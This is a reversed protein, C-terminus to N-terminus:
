IEEQDEEEREEDLTDENLPQQYLLEEVDETLFSGDRRKFAKIRKGAIPTRLLTGDLERLSYTGNKHVNTVVYPGFWRRSFKKKASHQHELSSDFVLVWDGEQIPHIRLRHTKDFREKNSLRAAKLREQAIEQNGPLQELQQIRLELLQERTVGDEWALFMWTPISEEAPMIPKQGLMLEIPMYGTVTSHTTRDAWLAFPLLRPWQKSNGKCAKVLAQVIPPHGREIKGNAEPNYATTLRLQVGYRGFFERAESADLEGRDARMRGISGYRSFIDELIFRCVGETSKTKLARGEVFNSLEERALVLYKMGWLGVPMSVLDIMWTFHMGLPYTPHLEDRHRMKSQMQCVTCSAVFKEVDKYLGKWWYREKIKTYTAWVGRHGAWLTDHFEKLVQYKTETNGVVRLPMGDNRKPRKWLLKDRLFFGYSQHRIRKFDKDTWGEQKKLTSLYLGIEKMKGEYLDAEFPLVEDCEGAMEAASVYADEGEDSDGDGGQVIMEDENSYRARSLMDAVSNKKGIIHILIPNLTRIYAIWRLMAIDPTSCNAIMGLLPLCDTELVVNAGILYNREAKLATLAGWLERKVQPYARQRETLIRAGFRIAFRRGEEDDQGVAWGSAIPSTDVTVVVPRGCEYDVQRLVPPSRLVDKLNQMALNQAEGWIFKSGKRLLRYLPESLHAFHPIWIQYFVCAGLFRRVETISSCARMKEIADVKEPNPKRGYRGCLHGVVLIEGVGFKSKDVSLTLGVDEMKVLIKEVDKIHEVVFRRCGSEDLTSDKVEEKCGKMPVDDVFPITKEPVFERLIQNMANQMHAVSNTAGQPLTCMRLFGLPTKMTTLDRSEYALQFQDYGSYLDGISYIAQGAFAEAVEDVAPGSGKNRITVKNAPQMDQIFRLAGSKKPVTFWRNSYPAMSPELIGMQIKEKLLAVLKPLLARPVPIPKLDWPVHPVTFIVMPAVVSPHVCGIEDPSAAFAKGHKSLMSRFKKKEAENLFQDGGIQLKDLTEETFKHGIKRVERLSPEREAKKIHESTDLPLQTAIPKVKKAVTKYKTNVMAELDLRYDQSWEEMQMAKYIEQYFARIHIEVINDTAYNELGDVQLNHLVQLIDDGVGEEEYVGSIYEDDLLVRVRKLNEEKKKIIKRDIPDLDKVGTFSVFGCKTMGVFGSRVSYVNPLEFTKLGEAGASGWEGRTCNL